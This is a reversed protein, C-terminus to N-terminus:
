HNMMHGENGMDMMNSGGVNVSNRYKHKKGEKDTVYMMYQWTGNMTFNVDCEYKDKNKQCVDKSEMYPMGPMEPMFFKIRMDKIDHMGKSGEMMNIHFKNSGLTLNKESSLHLDMGGVNCMQSFGAAFTVAALSIVGLVVKKM